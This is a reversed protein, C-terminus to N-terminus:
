EGRVAAQDPAPRAGTARRHEWPLVACKVDRGQGLTAFVRPVDELAVRSTIFAGWDVDAHCLLRYAESVDRPRFHFPSCIQVGDYHLRYTDFRVATGAPCGGFLIVTGGRRAYAPAREWVEPQGTCEIVADAGRGSTAQAVAAAVDDDEGLVQDAGFRRAVALRWRKRGAVIVTGTGATKLVVLWLLAVPGAGIVLVVADDRRAAPPLHDLGFCVSSLPELLAGQEYPLGGPKPYVNTRVVREPVLVYEAFAGLIMEDMLTECLNEQGHRCYFCRGCPGTNASLVAEGPRFREVAEGVAVIEGAFEHGFPTPWPMKPHGRTFAKLDTGCTLAAEVRVVIDGPGPVPDAVEAIEVEAPGKLICCKM